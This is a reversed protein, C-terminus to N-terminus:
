QRELKDELEPLLEGEVDVDCSKDEDPTFCVWFILVLYFSSHCDLNPRGNALDEQHNSSNPSFRSSWSIGPGM